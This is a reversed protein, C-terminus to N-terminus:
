PTKPTAAPDSASVSNRRPPAKLHARIALIRKGAPTKKGVGGAATDILNSFTDYNASGSAVFADQAVSQNTRAQDRIGKKSGLDDSMTKLTAQLTAPTLGSATLTAANDTIAINLDNMAGHLADPDIYSM